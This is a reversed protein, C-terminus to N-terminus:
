PRTGLLMAGFGIFIAGTARDFLRKLGPRTLSVALRAGSLAYVAYWFLEAAAFTVVLIAFQRVQPAGPDVFQPLFAGAFLLLKPNSAGILFGGRLLKARSPRAVPRQGDDVRIPVDHGRWAKVGLYVLYAVGAYRLADFLAPSALLVAGLGAASALLVLIVAGLCGAMATCSCRLGFRVSCGLIHLMNPGPTASLLFVATVFLWWTHLNMRFVRSRPLTGAM